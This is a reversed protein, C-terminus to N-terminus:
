APAGAPHAPQQGTRRGAIRDLAARADATVDVGDCSDFLMGDCKRPSALALRYYTDAAGAQGLGEAARGLYFYALDTNFGIRAVETALDQWLGNGHLGKLGKRALSWTAACGIECGLRIQGSQLAAIIEHRAVPDPTGDRQTACGVLAFGLALVLLARACHTRLTTQALAHSM